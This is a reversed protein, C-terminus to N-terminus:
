LNIAELYLSKLISSVNEQDINEGIERVYDELVKMTDESEINENTVYEDIDLSVDEIIKLDALDSQQLQKIYRDFWVQNERAQVIVKVFSGKLLSFDPITEYNKQIDDYYLKNFINYTNKHFTVRKNKTNLTHFGRECGYDNWYLQYPNGLYQISERKSRNHYHGSFTMDFKEYPSPDDGHEMFRGPIAEFGTLELHGMCVTADSQDIFDDIEKRNDPCIWPIMAIKMDDFQLHCPKDIIEINDYESLLHKPANIKLTNKFYIDHNGILMHMHVGLEKLPEFWMERACDLSLFNIYKRRDFTDGLCLINTIKNTKIYPIVINSYFERYKDIFVQNDNRVGFHQDTILLLKM